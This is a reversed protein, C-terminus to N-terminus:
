FGKVIKLCREAISSYADVKMFPDAIENYTTLGHSGVETKVREELHHQLIFSPLM